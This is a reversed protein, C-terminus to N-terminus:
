RFYYDHEEVPKDLDISDVDRSSLYRYNGGHKTAIDKFWRENVADHGEFAVMNITLENSAAYEDIVQQLKQKDPFCSPDSLFYIMQPRMLLATHWAPYPDTVGSPRFDDIWELMKLKNYSTAHLLVASSPLPNHDNSFVVSFSQKAKLGYIAKRLQSRFQAFDNAVSGTGDVIFVIRFANGKQGLFSVAPPNASRSISSAALPPMNQYPDCCSTM